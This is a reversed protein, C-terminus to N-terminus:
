AVTGQVQWATLLAEMAQRGLQRVREEGGALRGLMEVSVLGHLVAWGIDLAAIPDTLVVTQEAAWMELSSQVIEAAQTAQALTKELPLEQSIGGHM